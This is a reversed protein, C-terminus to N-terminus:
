DAHETARKRGMIRCMHFLLETIGENGPKELERALEPCVFVEGKETFTVSPKPISNRIWLAELKKVDALNWGQPTERNPDSLYDWIANEIDACEQLKKLTQPHKPDRTQKKQPTNRQRFRSLLSM